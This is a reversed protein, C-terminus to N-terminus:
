RLERLFWALGSSLITLMGLVFIGFRFSLLDGSLGLLYPIVGTGIMALTVIFGIAQGREEKEFLKPVAVFGIPFILPSITAQIFLVVKLCTMDRIILLVTFVGTALVLLSASKRLSFRDVFFGLLITLIAGGLRSVGFIANAHEMDMSLEKVLYLPIIFYLGLNCAGAFVWITGIIWFARKKLIGGLFYSKTKETEIEESVSYFIAACLFLVTGLVLFVGRWQVFSLIFLIIFPSALIAISPASGHAAIAKGWLREEYYETILPMISPLYLGAAFGLVLGLPYFVYFTKILPILFFVIGPVVVSLVISKRYGFLGAFTGSFFLSIAYGLSIFSFISTAQAHAVNFEDEILPLIPSIVTRQSFSMFWLFWIFVLFLFAKGNLSRYRAV